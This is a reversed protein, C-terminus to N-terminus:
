RRLIQEIQTELVCNMKWRNSSLLNMAERAQAFTVGQLNEFGYKKLTNLQKPTALGRERRGLLEGILRKAMGRDPVTETDIGMRQLLSLQKETPPLYEWKWMPEYQM